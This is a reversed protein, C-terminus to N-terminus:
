TTRRGDGREGKGRKDMGAIRIHTCAHSYQTRQVYVRSYEHSYADLGWLHVVCVALALM